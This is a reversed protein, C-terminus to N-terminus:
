KSLEWAASELAEARDSPLALSRRLEVLLQVEGPELRGDALSLCCM